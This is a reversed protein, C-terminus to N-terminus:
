VNNNLNNNNDIKIVLKLIKYLFIKLVIKKAQGSRVASHLIEQLAKLKIRKISFVTSLVCPKHFM